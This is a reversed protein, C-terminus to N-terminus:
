SRPRYASAWATADPTERGRCALTSACPVRSCVRSTYTDGRLRDPGRGVDRRRLAATVTVRHSGEGRTSGAPVPGPRPARAPAAPVTGRACARAICFGGPGPVGVGRQRRSRRSV